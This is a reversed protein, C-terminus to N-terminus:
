FGKEKSSGVDRTLKGMVCPLLEISTVQDSLVSYAYNLRRHDLGPHLWPASCLQEWFEIFRLAAVTPQFAICLSAILNVEDGINNKLTGVDWDGDPLEIHGTIVSDGDLWILPRGLTLLKM